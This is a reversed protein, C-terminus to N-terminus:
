DNFIDANEGDGGPRKDAGLTFIDFAHRGRASPIRYQFPQGWPDAPTTSSKLYPGRWKDETGAPATILAQMGQDSSPYTGIDLKYFELVDCLQAISQRAIKQKSAGFLTMVRPGVLAILLGLLAIVVLLELLTFGSQSRQLSPKLTGCGDQPPRGQLAGRQKTTM